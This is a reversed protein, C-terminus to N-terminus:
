NIQLVTEKRPETVTVKSPQKGTRFGNLEKNDILHAVATFLAFM